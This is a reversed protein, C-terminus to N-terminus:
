TKSLDLTLQRRNLGALTTQDEKTTKIRARVKPEDLDTRRFVWPGFAVPHLSPVDRREAALRLTKAAVSLYSAAEGLNM